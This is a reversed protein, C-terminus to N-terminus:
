RIKLYEELPMRQTEKEPDRDLFEMCWIELALLTMIRYGHNQLQCLIKKHQRQRRHERYLEDLYDNNYWGRKKLREFLLRVVEPRRQLWGHFPQDFPQGTKYVFSKPFYRLLSLKQFHMKNAKNTLKQLSNARFLLNFPLSCLFDMIKKNQYPPFLRMGFKKVFKEQFTSVYEMNGHVFRNDVLDNDFSEKRIPIYGLSKEEDFEEHFEPNLLKDRQEPSFHRYCILNKYFNRYPNKYSFPRFAYKLEWLREWSTLNATFDIIEYMAKRVFYPLFHIYRHIEGVPYLHHYINNGGDGTLFTDIEKGAERIMKYISVSSSMVPEEAARIIEPWLDIDEESVKIKHFKGKCKRTVYSAPRIENFLTFDYYCNYTHVPKDFAKSAALVVWSTDLGGSLASGLNGTKNYKTFKKIADVWLREYEELARPVDKVPRRNFEMGSYRVHSIKGKKSKLYFGPIMRYIHKFPTRESFSFGSNLFLSIVEKNVEKNPTLKLLPKIMDSFVLFDDSLYYYCFTNSYRNNFIFFEGRKIDYVFIVFYGDLFRIFKEGYRTYMDLILEEQHNLPLKYDETFLDTISGSLYVALNRKKVLKKGASFRLEGIKEPKTLLGAPLNRDKLVIGGFFGM